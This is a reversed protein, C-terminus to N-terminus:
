VLFYGNSNSPVHKFECLTNQLELQIHFTPILAKKYVFVDIRQNNMIVKVRIMILKYFIFLDKYTM